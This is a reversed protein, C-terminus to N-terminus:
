GHGRRDHRVAPLRRRRQLQSDPSGEFDATAFLADRLATRPIHLTDGDEIAVQDIATLVMNVADFAHAHFM